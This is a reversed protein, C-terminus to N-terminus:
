CRKKEKLVKEAYAKVAARVFDSPRLRVGARRALVNMADNFRQTDEPPLRVSLMKPKAPMVDYVDYTDYVYPM